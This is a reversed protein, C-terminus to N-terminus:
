ADGRVRDVVSTDYRGSVYVEDALLRALFPLNTAPGEVSFADVAARARLLAQHRTPAHVVVKALLPDYWPHVQDGQRYGSDVRVGPPEAWRTLTGPSPDFREPDEAYVRLEIAVGAVAAPRYSPQEGAAIRLQQEVLDVDVVLETVPHEVPLHPTLGVLAPGDPLLLLEVAGAGSHGSAAVVRRACASLESRAAGSLEPGPSEEVVKQGRRQVSGDVEPLVVVGGDLLALVPVSLHRAVAGAPALPVGADDALRRLGAADSVAELAEPASGIWALGASQVARAAAASRALAGTGPHVASAGTQRAAEVVRRVDLYSEQPPAPGLLVSDDAEAVHLAGADAASHVAVARVGLRQLTRVVRRAAEGRTAVVVTEFM